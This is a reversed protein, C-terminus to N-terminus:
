FPSGVRKGGQWYEINPFDGDRLQSLEWDTAGGRGSAARTLGPWVEVGDLNFVVRQKPDRLKELVGARWNTPDSLNKWTDAGHSRAFDDLHDSIGMAFPRGNEASEALRGGGFRSGALGFALEQVAMSCSGKTCQGAALVVGSALNVAAGVGAIGEIVPAAPACVVTAACGIAVLQAGSAVYGSVRNVDQLFNSWSFLGTQDAFLVPNGSAYGYADGTGGQDVSSFVSTATSYRRVGLQYKTGGDFTLGGTFMLPMAAAGSVATQTKVRGYPEYVYTRQPAASADRTVRVSGVEDTSVYLPTSGSYMATLERGYVYSRTVTSGSREGVLQGSMPDIDYTTTANGSATKALQGNGTYSYTTTVGGKTSSVTQGAANAVYTTDQDSTLNGDADYALTVASGTPPTIATTQDLANTTRTTTGSPRTEASLLGDRTYSYGVYDTAGTCTTTAYCVKTLRNLSDFVQTTATGAKDTVRTPNGNADRVYTASSLTSGGSNSEVSKMLFGDNNFTQVTKVGNGQTRTITNAATNYAYTSLSTTGKKVSTLRGDADYAYTIAAQGPATRSTLRGLADWAYKWTGLPGAITTPRDLSDFTYTTTGSGDVMTSRRGMADYTFSVDPTTDSYDVKTLLSRSDWTLTTSRGSPAVTKALRGNSDHDFTWKKGGQSVSTLRNAADFTYTAVKGDASTATALNGNADYTFQAAPATSDARVVSILHGANDYGYTTAAGRPDTETKIRGFGDYSITSASGSPHRVKTVRGAADRTYATDWTGTAGSVNGAPQTVSSIWGFTDFGDTTKNGLPSTSSIQDGTASSYGLVTKQQTPDTVSALDYTTTAYALTTAASSLPPTVKTLNRKSDYTYSTSRGLFDTSSSPESQGSAFTYTEKNGLADVRATVHGTSDYTFTTDDGTTDSVRFLYGADTWDYRATVGEPDVQKVLWGRDYVDKWEGGLPDTMTSTQSAADWTWTSVKGNGDTQSVVRGDSGYTVKVQPTSSALNRVSALLGNADYTYAVQVGGPKTVGTLRGSTYTYSTASGTVGQPTVSSLLGQANYAFTLKRSSSAVDQVRGSSDRTVTITRGDRDTMKQLVGASSFTLSWRDDTLITYTGDANETLTTSNAFPKLWGSVGHKYEIRAGYSTTWTAKTDPQVDLSDSFSSSWGPGMVGVDTANSSYSRWMNLAGGRVPMSFDDEAHTFAGTSSVVPDAQLGTPSQGGITMGDPLATAAGGSYVFYNENDAGSGSQSSDTALTVFGGSTTVPQGANSSSGAPCVTPVVFSTRALVQGPSPESVVTSGSALLPLYGCGSVYAKVQWAATESFGSCDAGVQQLIYASAEVSIKQGPAFYSMGAGASTQLKVVPQVSCDFSAASSPQAALAGALVAIIGLGTLLARLRRM